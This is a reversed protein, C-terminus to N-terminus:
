DRNKESEKDPKTKARNKEKERKAQAIDKLFLQNDRINKWKQFQM